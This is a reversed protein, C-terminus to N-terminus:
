LPSTIEEPLVPTVAPIDGELHIGAFGSIVNMCIGGVLAAHIGTNSSSPNQGLDIELARRYHFMAERCMGLMSAVQAYTIDSLSSDHVTHTEYYKWNQIQIERAFLEPLMQFLMILDAQKLVQMRNIKTRTYDRLITQRVPDCRYKSLDITEGELFHADQPIIGVTNPQPLYLRNSFFELDPLSVRESFFLELRTLDAVTLKRLEECAIHVVYQAMYNTYANDDVRESYEDPGVVDLIHFLGTEEDWQARSKWFLAAGVLLELGGEDLITRDGTVCVYRWLSYAVDATVHHEKLGSWIPEARGTVINVQGHSPTEDYGTDASEWPFMIGGYGHLRANNRAQELRHIRYMLMARAVDPSTYLYYPLLFCEVDWFVHGKYGEGSLGKAGISIDAERPVFGRMAFQAYRLAPGIFPDRASLTLGHRQWFAEMCASQERFLGEYGLAEASRVEDLARRMGSEMDGSNARCIACSKEMIFRGGTPVVMHVDQHIRRRSFAFGSSSAEGGEFRCVCACVISDPCEFLTQGLLMYRGERVGKGDESFHQEGSNSVQADIGSRAEVEMEGSLPEIEVRQAVCAPRTESVFRRFCIRYGRGSPSYWLIARRLEGTRLDLVRSYEELRGEQMSFCDGDLIIQLALMDAVNPLECPDNGVRGFFGAMFAGRTQFPYDEELAARIGINGNSQHLVSECNAQHRPDFRMEEISWPGIRLWKDGKEIM